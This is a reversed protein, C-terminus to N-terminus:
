RLFFRELTFRTKDLFNEASEVQEIDYVIPDCCSCIHIYLARLLLYADMYLIRGALCPDATIVELSM